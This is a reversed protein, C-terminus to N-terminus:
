RKRLVLFFGIAERQFRDRVDLVIAKRGIKKGFEEPTLLRAHFDKTSILDNPKIPSKGLLEAYEPFAKAWDFIGADFSLCNDINHYKAKVVAKYSKYCTRGNCYFVISKNTSESLSFLEDAFTSRALPINIAGKIRLTEYEYESRVDVIIVDDKQRFLEELTIVQVEPFTQRGPFESEEAYSISLFLSLISVRITSLTYQLM